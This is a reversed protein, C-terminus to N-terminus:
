GAALAAVADCIVQKAQSWTMRTLLVPDPEDEADEFYTLSKIM